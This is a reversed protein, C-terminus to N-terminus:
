TIPLVIYISATIFILMMIIIITRPTGQLEKGTHELFKLNIRKTDQVQVHHSVEREGKWIKWLILSFKHAPQEM